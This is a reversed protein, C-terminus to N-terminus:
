SPIDNYYSSSHQIIELSSFQTKVKLFTHDVGLADPKNFSNLHLTMFKLCESLNKTRVLEIFQQCRCLFLLYHGEKSESNFVNPYIDFVM